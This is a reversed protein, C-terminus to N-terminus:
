IYLNRIANLGSDPALKAYRMTMKIDSHNMLKQITFIPTGNIALHSAFTHRLTHLVVRNKTDKTDLGTNFLKDLIDKLQRQITRTAFKSYEGGVIFINSSQYDMNKISIIIEDTLFSKYTSNTKFDKLTIHHNVMDIDKLQINLITELRGGTVLALQTFITLLVNDKILNFLQKTEETNLFRERANDVKISKLKKSKIPNINTYLNDEIAINFLTGIFTINYNITSPALGKDILSQKFKLIDDTTISHIDISGFVKSINSKYKQETKIIDKSESTKQEKYLQFIDDLRIIEKKQRKKIIEPQEGLRLQHMLQIRKQNCYAERIGESHKGLTIWTDKKNNDKYRIYYM